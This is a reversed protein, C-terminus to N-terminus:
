AASEQSTPEEREVDRPFPLRIYFSAGRGATSQVDLDGGHAQVIRQCIPLGLGTGGKKTTFFPIFLKEMDDADIGAGTDSVSLEVMPQGSRNWHMRTAVTLVGGTEMAQLANQLLNILVQSLRARDMLMSPLDGSLRELVTVDEPIGQARLLALAHTALANVHDITKDLEFPRAYDLFQSVVLNLRDVEHLVVELMEQAQEPLDEAQLFQAAGKIGALPNRIEHALGAAMAGLAALRHEEELAQFDQINSLVVSTLQVAEQLRQIEEASFGDSWTEDRLNLWGLVAGGRSVFPLTLDSHMADMLDLIEAASDDIRARRKLTPRMHWPTGEALGDTFPHAAVVALPREAASSRDGVLTFSARGPDFLYLSCVPVRGSAHLRSLLLETLGRTAIVTPIEARLTVLTDALQQGRQNFLRNMAWEIQSKLPDYAALFLLSALFIQFTSHFPYDTFTGVWMVTVGDVLVLLFASVVLTAIHSFMENLDLLRYMVLIQYLFYLVVASLLVSLPPLAGQLVLGRTAISMGAPDVPSAVIRALQELMTFLAASAAFGLLYRLRVKEVRFGTEQHAEWLRLLTLCFALFTFIGSVVAPPSTRPAEGYLLLHTGACTPALVMTVLFLTQVWPSRRADPKGFVRDVTWLSFAPVFAGAMMYIVRLIALGPLLSLAFAAYALSICWGLGLFAVRASENRDMLWARTSLGAAFVAVLFYLLATM